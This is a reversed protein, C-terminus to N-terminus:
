HALLDSINFRYGVGVSVLWPDLEVTDLYTGNAYIDSDLNLIKKVDVSLQWGGGLGVDLGGGLAFGWDGKLDVDTGPLYSKEDFFAMYSVGVGLYPKFAGIPMHYQLSVTPPFIWVDAIKSGPGTLAGVRDSITHETFCCITEIAINQTLFYAISLTPVVEDSVDIIGGGLNTLDSGPLVETGLIKILTDGANDGALARSPAQTAFSAAVALVMLWPRLWATRVRAVRHVSQENNESM